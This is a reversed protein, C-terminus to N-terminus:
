QESHLNAEDGALYVKKEPMEVALMKGLYGFLMKMQKSEDAEAFIKREEENAMLKPNCCSFDPCCDGNDTHASNGKIWEDLQQKNDM